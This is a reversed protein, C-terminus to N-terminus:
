AGTRDGYKTWGWYSNGLIRFDGLRMPVGVRSRGDDDGCRVM